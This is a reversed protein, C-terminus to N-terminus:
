ESSSGGESSSADDWCAPVKSRGDNPIRPCEAAPNSACECACVITQGATDIHLARECSVRPARDTCGNAICTGVLALAGAIAIAISRRVRPRGSADLLLRVADESSWQLRGALYGALFQVGMTVAEHEDHHNFSALEGNPSHVACRTHTAGHITIAEIVMFLQAKTPRCVDSTPPQEIM